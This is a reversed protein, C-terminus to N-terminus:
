PPQGDRLLTGLLAIAATMGHLSRTASPMESGQQLKCLTHAPSKM